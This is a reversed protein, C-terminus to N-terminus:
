PKISTATEKMIEDAIRICETAKKIVQEANSIAQQSKKIDVQREKIYLWAQEILQKRDSKADSTFVKILQEKSPIPYRAM